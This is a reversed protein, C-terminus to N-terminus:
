FKDLNAEILSNLEKDNSFVIKPNRTLEKPILGPLYDMVSHKEQEARDMLALCSSKSVFIRFTGAPIRVKIAQLINSSHISNYLWHRYELSMMSQAASLSIFKDQLKQELWEIAEFRLDQFDYYGLQPIAVPNELIQDNKSFPQNQVTASTEKSDLVSSIPSSSCVAKSFSNELATLRNEISQILSVAKELDESSVFHDAPLHKVIDSLSCDLNSCINDLLNLSSNNNNKLRLFNSNSIGTIQKFSEESIEKTQLYDWLPSYSFPM